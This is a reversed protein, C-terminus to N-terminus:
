VGSQNASRLMKMASFSRTVRHGIAGALREFEIRVGHSGQECLKILAQPRPVNRGADVDDAPCRHDERVPPVADGRVDVAQGTMTRDGLFGTGHSVLVAQSLVPQVGRGPGPDWGPRLSGSPSRVSGPSVTCMAGGSCTSAMFSTARRRLSRGSM